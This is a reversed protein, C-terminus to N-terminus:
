PKENFPCLAKGRLELHMYQLFTYMVSLQMCPILHETTILIRRMLRYFLLHRISGGYASLLSIIMAWPELLKVTNLTPPLLFEETLWNGEQLSYRRHRRDMKGKIQLPQCNFRFFTMTIWVYWSPLTTQQWPIFWGLASQRSIARSAHLVTSICQLIKRRDTAVHM